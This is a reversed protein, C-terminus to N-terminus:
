TFVVFDYIGPVLDKSNPFGLERCVVRADDADFGDACMTVWDGHSYMEVKGATMNENNQGGTIRVTMFICCIFM